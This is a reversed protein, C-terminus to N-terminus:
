ATSTVLYDVLMKTLSNKTANQPWVAYIGLDEPHWDPLVYEMMGSKVDEEALFEPVIALGAGSRAFEYLAHADNVIIRSGSKLVISKREGNRFIEKKGQVAALEVWDLKELDKPHEPKNHEKLYSTAAVLKRNTYQLKRAIFSSDELWGMRIAIDFGDGILNKRTDSFDLFLDVKPYQKLFDSLQAILSSHALVAPMTIRLEGSPNLTRESIEEMGQEAAELMKHASALLREGDSTLSLNRTSRYLLATGLRNELSAIQQSVVSPSLNMDKAAARFSGHDITKAFIAMQRLENFM